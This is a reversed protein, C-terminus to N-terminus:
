NKDRESEPLHLKKVKFVYWLVVPIALIVLVMVIALFIAPM